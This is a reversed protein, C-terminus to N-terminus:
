DPQALQAASYPGPMDTGNRGRKASSASQTGIARAPQLPDYDEVFPGVGSLGEADAADGVGNTVGGTAVDYTTVASLPVESASRLAAAVGRAFSGPTTPTDRM